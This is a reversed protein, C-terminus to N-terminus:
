LEEITTNEQTTTLYEMLGGIGYSLDYEEKITDKVEEYSLYSSVNVDTIFMYKCNKANDDMDLLILNDKVMDRSTFAYEYLKSIKEEKINLGETNVVHDQPLLEETEINAYKVTGEKIFLSKNEEYFKKLEEETVNKTKEEALEAIKTSLAIEEKLYDFEVKDIEEKSVTINKEKALDSLIFTDALFFLVADENKMEEFFYNYVETTVKDEGIKYAYKDSGMVNNQYVKTTGFAILIAVILFIISKIWKRKRNIEQVSIYEQKKNLIDQQHELDREKKSLNEEKTQEEKTEIISENNSLKKDENNNSM